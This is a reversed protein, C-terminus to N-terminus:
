KSHAAEAIMLEINKESTIILKHFNNSQIINTV